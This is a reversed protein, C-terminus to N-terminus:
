GGLLGWALAGAAILAAAGLLKPGLLRAMLPLMPGLRFSPYLTAEEYSPRARMRQYYALLHPRSEILLDQKLFLLRTLSVTWIVDALSYTAGAIFPHASLVEDLADLERELEARQRKVGDPDRSQHKLQTMDAIKAEYEARLDPYREAYARLKKLKKQLGLETLRPNARSFTFLRFDLSEALAYWHEMRTREEPDEPLLAPGEFQEAVYRMIVVSNTVVTEGHVLTPVVCKPNLKVYWPEYNESTLGIDVWRNQFPIGMEVLVLRVKQSCLSPPINYLLVESM